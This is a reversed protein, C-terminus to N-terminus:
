WRVYEKSIALKRAGKDFFEHQGGEKIQKCVIDEDFVVTGALYDIGYKFLLPTMPTTPGVLIVCANSSLELLRPLTKNILTTGTIFVYDMNLLVYECASDILDGNAPKRELIVLESVEKMKELNKFHGVSAVKKGRVRELFSEFIDAYEERDEVIDKMAEINEPTNYFSNIAAVGLSAEYLNWSKSYAALEKLKMGTIKGAQPLVKEGELPTMAMGLGKSKVTSWHLGAICDLVVLEEPIGGILEDYIEWM